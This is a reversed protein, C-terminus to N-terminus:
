QLIFFHTHSSFDVCVLWRALGNCVIIYFHHAKCPRSNLNKKFFRIRYLVFLWHNQRSQQALWVIWKKKKKQKGKAKKHLTASGGGKGAGGIVVVAASASGRGPDVCSLKHKKWHAKQHEICCYGVTKCRSCALLGKGGKKVEFCYSCWAPAHRQYNLCDLHRNNAYIRNFYFTCGWLVNTPRM